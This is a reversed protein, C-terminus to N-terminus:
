MDQCADEHVKFEKVKESNKACLDCFGKLDCTECWLWRPSSRWVRSCFVCTRAIKAKKKEKEQEERQAKTLERAEANKRKREATALAKEQRDSIAREKAEQSEREKKEKEKKYRQNQEQVEELTFVKSRMEVVRAYATTKPKKEPSLFTKLGSLIKNCLKDEEIKEIDGVPYAAVARKEQLKLDFPYIGTRRFGSKIVNPSLATSLSPIISAVVSSVKEEEVFANTMLHKDRNKKLVSKFVSFPVNDLPQIIHTTGPPFLVATVNKEVLSEYVKDTCHCHLRDLFLFSPSSFQLQDLKKLFIKLFMHFIEETAYGSESVAYFVNSLKQRRACAHIPIQATKGSSKVPLVILTCVTNGDASVFPLVSCYGGERKGKMSSGHCSVLSLRRGTGLIDDIKVRCEDCNFIHSPPTIQLVRNELQWKRFLELLEGNEENSRSGSLLRAKNFELLNSHAACFRTVWHVSFIADKEPFLCQAIDRIELRTPPLSLRVLSVLAAVLANEELNTLIKRTDSKSSPKTSMRYRKLRKFAIDATPLGYKEMIYAYKPEGKPRNKEHTEYVRLFEKKEAYSFNKGRSTAPQTKPM